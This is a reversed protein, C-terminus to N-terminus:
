IGVGWASPNTLTNEVNKLGTSADKEIKEFVENLKDGGKLGVELVADESASVAHRHQFGTLPYALGDLVGLRIDDVTSALNLAGNGVTKLSENLPHPPLESPSTLPVSASLLLANQAAFMEETVTNLQHIAENAQTMIRNLEGQAEAVQQAAITLEQAAERINNGSKLANRYDDIAYVLNRTARYAVNMKGTIRDIADSAQRSFELAKSFDAANIHKGFIDRANRLIENADRAAIEIETFARSRMFASTSDFAKQAAGQLNDLTTLNKPDVQGFARTADRLNDVSPIVEAFPNKTLRSIATRAPGLFIKTFIYANARIRDVATVVRGSTAMAKTAAKNADVIEKLRKIANGLGM